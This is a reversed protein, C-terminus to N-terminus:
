KGSRFGRGGFIAFTLCPLGFFCLGQLANVVSPEGSGPIRIPKPDVVLENALYTASALFVLLAAFRFALLSVRRPVWFGLLVLACFSSVGVAVATGAFDKGEAIRVEAMGAFVLVCVVLFPSLLWRLIPHDAFPPQEPTSV